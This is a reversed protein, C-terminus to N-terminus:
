KLRSAIIDKFDNLKLPKPLVKDVGNSLFFAMDTELTHGAASLWVSSNVFIIKICFADFLLHDDM